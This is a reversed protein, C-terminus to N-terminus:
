SRTDLVIFLFFSFAAVRFPALLVRTFIIFLPYM